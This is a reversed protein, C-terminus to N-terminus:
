VIREEPVLLLGEASFFGLDDIQYIGDTIHALHQCIVKAFERLNERDALKDDLELTFVQQSNVVRDIMSERRPHDVTELWAVWSNLQHRMDAEEVLFREIGVPPLGPGVDIRARMWGLHDGSFHVFIDSRLKRLNEALTAAPPETRSNSFIRYSITM